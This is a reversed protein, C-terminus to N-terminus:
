LDMLLMYTCGFENSSIECKDFQHRNYSLKHLNYGFKYAVELGNLVRTEAAPPLFRTPLDSVSSGQNTEM